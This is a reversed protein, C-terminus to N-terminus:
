FSVFLVACSNRGRPEPHFGPHPRPHPGRSTGPQPDTPAPPNEKPPATAGGEAQSPQDGTKGVSKSPEGEEQTTAKCKPNDYDPWDQSDQSEGGGADKFQQEETATSTFKATAMGKPRHSSSSGHPTQKTRM